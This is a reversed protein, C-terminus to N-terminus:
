FDKPVGGVIESTSYVKQPKLQYIGNGLSTILYMNCGRDKLKLLVKISLLKQALHEFRGTHILIVILIEISSIKYSVCIRM